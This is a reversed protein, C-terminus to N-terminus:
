RECSAGSEENTSPEAQHQVIHGQIEIESNEKPQRTDDSQTRDEHSPPGVKSLFNPYSIKSHLPSMTTYTVITPTKVNNM